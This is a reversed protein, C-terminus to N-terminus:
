SSYRGYGSPTVKTRSRNAVVGVLPAGVARLLERARRATEISTGRVDVVLVVGDVFRSLVLTDAVSLVPPADIVIWAYAGRAAEVVDGIRGRAVLEPADVPPRGAPLLDLGPVITPVVAQELAVAGGGALLEALGSRNSSGLLQALQPKRLDGDILLTRREAYACVAALNVATTTKGEGPRASTLLVVRRGEPLRSYGLTARLSRYSEAEPSGPAVPTRMM